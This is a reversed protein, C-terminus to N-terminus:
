EEAISITVDFTQVVTRSGGEIEAIANISGGEEVVGDADTDDADAGVELTVSDGANELLEPFPVPEEEPDAPEADGGLDYIDANGESTLTITVEGNDADQSYSFGANAETNIEDGLGLVFAGIVAALIVTIAVLLIVGIVPSVGREEGGFLSKVKRTHKKLEM